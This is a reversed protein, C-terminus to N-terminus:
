RRNRTRRERNTRREPGSYKLDSGKRREQRARRDSWERRELGAQDLLYDIMNLRKEMLIANRTTGVGVKVPRLEAPFDAVLSILVLGIKQYLLLAEQRHDAKLRALESLLGDLEATISKARDYIKEYLWSLSFLDDRMMESLKKAFRDCVAQAKHLDDATMQRIGATNRLDRMFQERVEEILESEKKKGLGIEILMVISKKCLREIRVLNERVYDVIHRLEGTLATWQAGLRILMIKREEIMEMLRTMRMMHDLKSRKLKKMTREANAIFEAPSEFDCEVLAHIQYEYQAVATLLEENVFRTHRLVGFAMRERLDQLDSELKRRHEFADMDVLMMRVKGVGNILTVLYGEKKQQEFFARLKEPTPLLGQKPSMRPVFINVNDQKM